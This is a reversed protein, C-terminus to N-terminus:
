DFIFLFTFFYSKFKDYLFNNLLIPFIMDFDVSIIMFLNINRIQFYWIITRSPFTHFTSFVIIELLTPSFASPLLSFYIVCFFLSYFINSFFEQIIMNLISTNIFLIFCNSNCNYNTLHCFVSCLSIPLSISLFHLPHQWEENLKQNNKLYIINNKQM